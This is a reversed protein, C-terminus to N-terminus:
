NRVQFDTAAPPLVTQPDFLIKGFIKRSTRTYGIQNAFKM